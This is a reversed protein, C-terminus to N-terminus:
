KESEWRTVLPTALAALAERAANVAQVEAPTMKEAKKHRTAKELNREADKIKGRTDRDLEKGAKSGLATNM